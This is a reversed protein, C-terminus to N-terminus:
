AAAAHELLAIWYPVDINPDGAQGAAIAARTEEAIIQRAEEALTPWISQLWAACDISVYTRRGLCYRFAALVLWDEPDPFNPDLRDGATLDLLPAAAPPPPPQPEDPHLWAFQQPAERVDRQLVTLTRADLHDRHTLVYQTFEGLREGNALLHRAACNLMLDTILKKAAGAARFRASKTALLLDTATKM